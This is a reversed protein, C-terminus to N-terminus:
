SRFKFIKSKDLIINKNKVIRQSNIRPLQNERHTSINLKVSSRNNTITTSNDCQGQLIRKRINDSIKKLKFEEYPNSSSILLKSINKTNIKSINESM